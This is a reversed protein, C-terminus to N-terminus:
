SVERHTAEVKENQSSHVSGTRKKTHGTFDAPNRMGVDKGIKWATFTHGVAFVEEVEELTRGKTEPYMFLVHFFALVNCTAFIFYVNFSISALGPPVAYALAFNFVWNSATSLSIAKARVRMPFIESPYTWSVPGMTIAFSCVFLYSAVIIARTVNGNGSDVAWVRAGGIEAWHGYAGQLGGVLFLWFAMLALGILLMPRRGWKDIYIIAPITLAVNLVYQVSSAILNGRRGTLGAGEFVITIYYMMVNMGTLQSWMQLSVGLVVRRFVSGELLEGWRKAGYQKEFDIQGKIENYELQVLANNPDGKGHVDALIELAREDYGKDMLWRPSEPFWMMGISLIIAPITQLAWPIRISAIGDIYSCGFQVFFQLLIGWTISWQQLSVLRGRIAPATIEAQYMPVVASAIGISIGAIIRGVVLMGRNQSAAQLIAGIVWVIGSLIVTRKRGLKDALITVSLAGLLSGAPMSAVIAGQANSNPNHFYEIYSPNTIVGAMSSIDLGFLGGGICAFSGVVYPSSAVWASYDKAM